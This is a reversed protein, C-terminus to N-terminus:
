ATAAMSTLLNLANPGLGEPSTRSCNLCKRFGGLDDECLQLDGQCHQCAGPWFVPHNTGHDRTKNVSLNLM